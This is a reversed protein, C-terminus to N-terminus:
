AGRHPGRVNELTDCQRVIQWWVVYVSYQGDGGAFCKLKFIYLTFFPIHVKISNKKGFRLIELLHFNTAAKSSSSYLFFPQRPKECVFVMNFYYM